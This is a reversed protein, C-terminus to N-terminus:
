KAAKRDMLVYHSLGMGEPNCSKRVAITPVAPTAQTTQPTKVTSTVTQTMNWEEPIFFLFPEPEGCAKRM